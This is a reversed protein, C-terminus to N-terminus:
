QLNCGCRFLLLTTSTKTCDVSTNAPLFFVSGPGVTVVEVTKGETTSLKGEGSFVLLITPGISKPLSYQNSSTNSNSMEIKELRFEEIPASFVTTITDQSLGKLVRPAGDSYTLMSCLTDVDKFKPTLGARVVNDSCAMCEICEGSLYAHPENASLFM